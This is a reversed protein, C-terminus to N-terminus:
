FGDYENNFRDTSYFDQAEKKLKDREQELEQVKLALRAESKGADMLKQKLSDNEM